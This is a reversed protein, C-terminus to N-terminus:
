PECDPQRGAARAEEFAERAEPMNDQLDRMRTETAPHTSLYEPPGNAAAEQMLGWFAISEEPEFGAQAMLDLGILDAETEHARSFPLLIGVQAGMGLLGMLQDREPSPGGRIMALLELGAGTAFQQSMRENGHDALVHGIEHGIVAAVQHQNEALEVMGSHIGIKGGPVAFANPTPEDFVTVEWPLEADDGTVQELLHGTICNVYRVQETQEVVPQEEQMQQFAAIGMQNLEDPSFLTLQPRGTPSTSCAGLMAAFVAALAPITLAALKGRMSCPMSAPMSDGWNGDM